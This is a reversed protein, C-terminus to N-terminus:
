VGVIRRHSIRSTLAATIGGNRRSVGAASLDMEVGALTGSLMLENFDGLHAIRFVKRALQGLGNGLSLDYRDLVQAHFEDADHGDPMVM